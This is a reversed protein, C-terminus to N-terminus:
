DKEANKLDTSGATTGVAIGKEPKTTLEAKTLTREVFRVYMIVAYYTENMAFGYKLFPQYDGSTNQRLM